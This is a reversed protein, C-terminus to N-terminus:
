NGHLKTRLLTAKLSAVKGRFDEQVVSSATQTEGSSEITVEATEVNEDASRDDERELEAVKRAAFSRGADV